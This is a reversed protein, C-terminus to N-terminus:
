CLSPFPMSQPWDIWIDKVSIRHRVQRQYYVEFRTLFGTRPYFFRNNQINARGGLTGIDSSDTSSNQITKSATSPIVSSPEALPQPPISSVALPPPIPAQNKNLKRRPPAVPRYSTAVIRTWRQRHSACRNSFQPKPVLLLMPNIVTFRLLLFQLWRPNPQHHHKTKLPLLVVRIRRTVRRQYLSKVVSFRGVRGLSVTSQMSM